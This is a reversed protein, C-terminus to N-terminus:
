AGKAGSVAKNPTALALMRDRESGRSRQRLDDAWAKLRPVLQALHTRAVLRLGRVAREWRDSSLGVLFAEDQRSFSAPFVIKLPDPTARWRSSSAAGTRRWACGYVGMRSRATQLGVRGWVGGRRVKSQGAREVVDKAVRLFCDLLELAAPAIAAGCAPGGTGGM